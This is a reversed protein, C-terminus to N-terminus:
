VAPSGLAFLEIRAYKQISPLLTDMHRTTGDQPTQKSSHLMPFHTNGSVARHFNM